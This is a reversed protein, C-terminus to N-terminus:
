KTTLWPTVVVAMAYCPMAAAANNIHSVHGRAGNLHSVARQNYYRSGASIM